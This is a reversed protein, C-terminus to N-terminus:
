ICVSHPVHVAGIEGGRRGNETDLGLGPIRAGRFLLLGVNMRHGFVLDSICIWGGLRKVRWVGTLLGYLYFLHFSQGLRLRRIKQGLLHLHLEDERRREVKRPM